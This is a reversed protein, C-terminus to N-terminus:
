PSPGEIAMLANEQLLIGLLEAFDVAPAAELATDLPADELVAKLLAGGGIPLLRPRPDFGPRVVLVEEAAMTPKPADEETNFRWIAHIPWDSRILRVAPALRLRSRLLRDPPIAQLAEAALPAADAAHYSRVLALELRAIDPLYGLSNTHPYTALFVPMAGGYGSLVPSHPPHARLFEGALIRFNDAGLLKEIVPFTARLAEILSVVVNNRYVDFRKTAAVGDPNILGNPVTAEPHLIAHAFGPAIAATM